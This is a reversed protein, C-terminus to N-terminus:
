KEIVITTRQLFIGQTPYSSFEVLSRDVRSPAATYSATCYSRDQDINTETTPCDARNNAM